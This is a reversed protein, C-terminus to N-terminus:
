ADEAALDVLESSNYQDQYFGLVFLRIASSLNAFKREADIRPTWADGGGYFSIPEPDYFSSWSLAFITSVAAEPTSCQAFIPVPSTRWTRSRTARNRGRARKAADARFM